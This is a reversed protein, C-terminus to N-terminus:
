RVLSNEEPDRNLAGSARGRTLNGEHGSSLMGAIPRCRLTPLLIELITKQDGRGDGVGVWPSRQGDAVRQNKWFTSASLTVYQPRPKVSSLEVQHLKEALPQLAHVGAVGNPSYRSGEPLPKCNPVRSILKPDTTDSQVDWM